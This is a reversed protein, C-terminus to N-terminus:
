VNTPSKGTYSTVYLLTSLRLTLTTMTVPFSNGKDYGVFICVMDHYTKVTHLKDFIKVSLLSETYHRVGHFLDKSRKARKIGLVIRSSRM